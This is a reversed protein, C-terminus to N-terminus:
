DKGHKHHRTPATPMSCRFTAPAPISPVRKATGDCQEGGGHGDDVIAECAREMPDTYKDYADFKVGCKECLYVYIPM